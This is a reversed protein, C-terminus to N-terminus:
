TVDWDARTAMVLMVENRDDDEEADGGEVWVPSARGVDVSLLGRRQKCAGGAADRTKTVTMMM